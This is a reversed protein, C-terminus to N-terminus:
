DEPPYGADFGFLADARDEAAQSRDILLQIITRLQTINLQDLWENLVKQPLDPSSIDHVVGTDLRILIGSPSWLDDM